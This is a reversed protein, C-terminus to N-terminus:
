RDGREPTRNWTRASIPTSTSKRRLKLEQIAYVLFLRAQNDHALRGAFRMTPIGDETRDTAFPITAFEPSIAPAGEVHVGTWVPRPTDHLVTTTVSGLLLTRFLGDDGPVIVRHVKLGQFKDALYSQAVQTEAQWIASTDIV